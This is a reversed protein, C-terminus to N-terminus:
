SDSSSRKIEGLWIIVISVWSYFHVSARALKGASNPRKLRSLRCLPHQGVYTLSTWMRLHFVYLISVWVATLTGVVGAVLAFEDLLFSSMTLEQVCHDHIEFVMGLSPSFVEFKSFASGFGFAVECISLALTLGYLVTQTDVAM